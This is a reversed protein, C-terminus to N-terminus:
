VTEAPLRGMATCAACTCDGDLGYRRFARNTRLFSVLALVSYVAAMCAFSFCSAACRFLRVAPNPEHQVIWTDEGDYLYLNPVLLLLPNFSREWPICLLLADSGPMAHLIGSMVPIPYPLSVIVTRVGESKFSSALAAARDDGLQEPVIVAAPKKASALAEKLATKRYPPMALEHFADERNLELRAIARFLSLAARVRFLFREGSDFFSLATLNYAHTTLWPRHYTPIISVANRQRYLMRELIKATGVGKKSLPHEMLMGDPYRLRFGASELRMQLEADEYGLYLPLYTLGATELVSRDMAGYWHISRSKTESRRLLEMVPLFFSGPESVASGRLLQVLGKDLPTCDVDVLILSRYGNRLAYKEGAYYAGGPGLASYMSVLTVGFPRELKVKSLDLQPSHVIIVDFDQVSQQLLLDLHRNLVDSEDHVAIILACDGKRGKVSVKSVLEHLPPGKRIWSHYDPPAM